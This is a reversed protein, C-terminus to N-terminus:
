PSVPHRALPLVGSKPTRCDRLQSSSRAAGGCGPSKTYLYSEEPEHQWRSHLQHELWPSRPSVTPGLVPGAFQRRPPTENEKLSMWSFRNCPFRRWKACRRRKRESTDGGQTSGSKPLCHDRFPIQRQAGSGVSIDHAAAQRSPQSCIQISATTDPRAHRM